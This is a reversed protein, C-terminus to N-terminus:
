QEQIVDKEAIFIDKEYVVAGRGHSEWRQLARRGAALYAQDYPVM